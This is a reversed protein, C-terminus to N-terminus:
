PTTDHHEAKIWRQCQARWTAEESRAIAIAMAHALNRRIGYGHLGDYVSWTRTWTNEHATFRTRPTM